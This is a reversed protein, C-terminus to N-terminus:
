NVAGVTVGALLGALVLSGDEHRVVKERQLRILGGVIHLLPCDLCTAIDDCHVFQTCGLVGIGHGELDFIALNRQKWLARAYSSCDPLTV